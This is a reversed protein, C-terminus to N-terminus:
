FKIKLNFKVLYNNKQKTIYIAFKVFIKFM